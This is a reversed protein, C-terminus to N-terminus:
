FFDSFTPRFLFLINQCVKLLVLDKPKCISDCATKYIEEQLQYVYKHGAITILFPKDEGELICWLEHDDM